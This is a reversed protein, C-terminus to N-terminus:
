IFGLFNRQHFLEFFLEASTVKVSHRDCHSVFSFLLEISVKTSESRDDYDQKHQSIYACFDINHKTICLVSLSLSYTGDNFSVRCSSLLRIWVYYFITQICIHCKANSRKKWIPGIEIIGWVECEVNRLLSYSVTCIVMVIIKWCLIQSWITTFIM